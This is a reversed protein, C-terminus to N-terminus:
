HLASVPPYKPAQGGFVEKISQSAMTVQPIASPRTASKDPTMLITEPAARTSPTSGASPATQNPHDDFDASFDPEASAAKIAEALKPISQASVWNPMGEKWVLDTAGLKGQKALSILKSSSVPTNSTDAPASM